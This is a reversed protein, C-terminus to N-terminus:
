DFSYMLIMIEILSIYDGNNIAGGNLAELLDESSQCIPNNLEKVDLYAL